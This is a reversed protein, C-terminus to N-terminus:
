TGIIDTNQIEYYQERSQWKRKGNECVASAFLQKCVNIHTIIIIIIIIIIIVLMMM